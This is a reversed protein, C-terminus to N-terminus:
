KRLWGGAPSSYGVGLAEQDDAWMELIALKDAVASGPEVAYVLLTLDPDSPPAFGVRGRTLGRM